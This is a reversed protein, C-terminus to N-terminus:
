LCVIDVVDKGWAWVFEGDGTFEQVRAGGVSGTPNNREVVYVNGTAQDVAIGQPGNFEGGLSGEIGGQCDSATTCIEFVDGLDTNM